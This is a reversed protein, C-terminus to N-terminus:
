SLYARDKAAGPSATPASAACLTPSGDVWIVSLVKWRAPWPAPLTVSPIGLSRSIMMVAEAEMLVGWIVTGTRSSSRAFDNADDKVGTRSDSTASKVSPIRTLSDNITSLSRIRRFYVADTVNNPVSRTSPWKPAPVTGSSGRTKAWERSISTRRATMRAVAGARAFCDIM